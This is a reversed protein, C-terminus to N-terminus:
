AISWCSAAQGAERALSRLDAVARRRHALRRRARAITRSARACRRTAPPQPRSMSASSRWERARAARCVGIQGLARRRARTHQRREHPRSGTTRRGRPPRFGRWSVAGCCRRGSAGRFSVSTRRGIHSCSPRLRRRAAGAELDGFVFTYGDPASVAVTPAAQLRRSVAGASGRGRGTALRRRLARRDPASRETRAETMSSVPSACASTVTVAHTRRATPRHDAEATAAADRNM